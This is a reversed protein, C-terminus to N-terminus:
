NRKGVRKKETSHEKLESKLKEIEKDKSAIEKELNSAKERNKQLDEKIAKM